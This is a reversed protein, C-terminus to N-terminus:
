GEYNGGNEMFSTLIGYEETFVIFDIKIKKKVREDIHYKIKEGIKEWVKESINEDKMILLAEDTTIASMIKNIITKDIGIAGCHAAIIEMRCDAVKSHTNMIGGALKVMKGAHGILLIKKVGKYVAYDLADGIFNSCKIFDDANLGLHNKAFDRGYNGFTLYLFDKGESIKMDMEVKITDILAKESMPEVIGSTGLISIGGIIGLRENMTKKAIERGEPCSIIVKIGGKYNFENCVMFVNDEINKYPVKNIAHKGISVKLGKRTVIGIGEGGEIAIKSKTKLCTAFIKIGNTVDPDDGADKIVSCRVWENTRKIDHIQINLVINDKPIRVDISEVNHGSLLMLASAKAAAASCTGTTYGSKLKKGNKFNFFGEM